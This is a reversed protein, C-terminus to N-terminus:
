ILFIDFFNWKFDCCYLYLRQFSVGSLDINFNSALDLLRPLHVNLVDM